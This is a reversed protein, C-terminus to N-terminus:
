GTGLDDCVTRKTGGGETTKVTRRGPSGGGNLAGLHKRGLPCRSGGPHVRRSAKIRSTNVDFKNQVGSKTSDEREMKLWERAVIKRKGKKKRICIRGLTKRGKRTLCKYEGKSVGMGWTANILALGLNAWSL